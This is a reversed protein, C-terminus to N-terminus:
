RSHWCRPWCMDWRAVAAMAWFFARASFQVALVGPLVGCSCSGGMGMRRAPCVCIGVGGLGGPQFGSRQHRGHFELRQDVRCVCSRQARWGLCQWHLSQGLSGVVGIGDSPDCFAAQGVASSPRGVLGRRGGTGARRRVLLHGPSCGALVGHCRHLGAPNGGRDGHWRWAPPSSMAAASARSTSCAAICPM